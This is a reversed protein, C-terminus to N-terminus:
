NVVYANVFGSLIETDPEIDQRNRYKMRATQEPTYEVNVLDQGLKSKQIMKVFNEELSIHTQINKRVEQLGIESMTQLSQYIRPRSLAKLDIVNLNKMTNRVEKNIYDIVDQVSYDKDRNEYMMQGIGVQLKTGCKEILGCVRETLASYVNMKRIVERPMPKQEIIKKALELEVKKQQSQEKNAIIELLEEPIIPFLIKEELDVFKSPYTEEIHDVYNRVDKNKNCYTFELQSAFYHNGLSLEEGREHIAYYKVLDKPIKEEVVFKVWDGQALAYKKGFLLADWGKYMCHSFAYGYEKAIPKALEYPVVGYTFDFGDQNFQSWSNNKDVYKILSKIFDEQELYQKLTM